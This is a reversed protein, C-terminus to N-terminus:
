QNKNTPWDFNFDETQGMDALASVFLQRLYEYDPEAYFDLKRVYKMYEAMQWAM